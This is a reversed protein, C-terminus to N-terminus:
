GDCSVRQIRPMLVRSIETSSAVPTDYLTLVLVLPGSGALALWNGPAPHPSVAVTFSNDPRHVISDAHLASPRTASAALPRGATDAAYLTWFRSPPVKGSLEYSCGLVLPAGGHDRAATFSLGEARGLPLLGRRAVTAAAYPSAQPTGLDPRATWEGAHLTEIGYGRDLMWLVSAAGGLIAISLSVLTLFVTRLM